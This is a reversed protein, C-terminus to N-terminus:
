ANSIMNRRAQTTTAYPTTSFAGSRTRGCSELSDSQKFWFTESFTGSHSSHSVVSYKAHREFLMKGISVAAKQSINPYRRLADATSQQRYVTRSFWNMNYIPRWAEYDIVALGALAGDHVTHPDIPRSVM